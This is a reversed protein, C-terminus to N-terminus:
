KKVDYNPHTAFVKDLRDKLPKGLNTAMEGIEKVTLSPDGGHTTTLQEIMLRAVSLAVLIAEIPMHQDFRGFDTQRLADVLGELEIRMRVLDYREHPEDSNPTAWEMVKQTIQYVAGILQFVSEFHQRKRQNEAEANRRLELKHQHNVLWVSAFIAIGSFIAQAWAAWQEGSVNTLFCLEAM